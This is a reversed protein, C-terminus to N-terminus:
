RRLEDNEKKTIEQELQVAIEEELLRKVIKLIRTREAMKANHYGASWGRMYSEARESM